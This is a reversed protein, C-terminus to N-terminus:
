KKAPPRILLLLPIVMLTLIFMLWFDDVYAIMSAQRTIEANLSAAAEPTALSYAPNDLLAGNAITIKEGLV